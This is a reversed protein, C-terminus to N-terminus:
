IVKDKLILIWILPSSFQSLFIKLASIKPQIKLENFGFRNLRKEAENKDLGRLSSELRALNEEATLSHFQIGTDVM